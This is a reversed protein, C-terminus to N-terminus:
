IKTWHYGAAKWGYNISNWIAGKVVGMNKAADTMSEFVEGTEICKVPEKQAKKVNEKIDMWQLNSVSNNTKDGDIHDVTNYNNPNPIYAQAVLRHIKCLKKKNNKSLNIVQYGDKDLSPKRWGGTTGTRKYSWVEGNPTIAYLGEYGQIDKMQAGM